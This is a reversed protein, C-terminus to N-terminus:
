LTVDVLNEHGAHADIEFRYERDKVVVRDIHKESQPAAVLAMFESFPMRRPQPGDTKLVNWISVVAVIVVIWFLFPKHSQKM